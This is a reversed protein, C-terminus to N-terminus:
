SKWHKLISNYIDFSSQALEKMEKKALDRDKHGPKGEVFIKAWNAAQEYLAAAALLNGKRRASVATDAVVQWPYRGM